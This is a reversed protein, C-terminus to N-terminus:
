AVSSLQDDQYDVADQWWTEYMDHLDLDFVTSKFNSYDLSLLREAVLQAVIKKPLTTRWRYDREPTEEIKCEAFNQLHKRKRARVLLNGPKKTDEVISLFGDSLCIWM